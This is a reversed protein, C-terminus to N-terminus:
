VVSQGSTYNSIYIQKYFLNSATISVTSRKNNNQLWVPKNFELQTGLFIAVNLHGADVKSVNFFVYDLTLVRLNDM